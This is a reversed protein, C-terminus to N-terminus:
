VPPGALWVIWTAFALFPGFPLRTRVDIPRGILLTFVAAALGLSSAILVVLPLGDLGLWAGSAALLKADGLGLGPYGRLHLFAKAILYFALFGAVASAVRWALAEGVMPGALLCGALGLPLTLRDPLRFESLDIASLAILTSALAASLLIAAAGTRNGPPLIFAAAAAGVAYLVALLIAHVIRRPVHM